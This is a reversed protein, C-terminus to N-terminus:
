PHKQGSKPQIAWSIQWIAGIAAILITGSFIMMSMLLVAPAEVGYIASFGILTFEAVGLNAISIPLIGLLYVASSQWVLATPPIAIGAAKAASVYIVINLLSAFLSVGVILIHFKWGTTQFTAIQNLTRETAARISKPLPRLTYKIVAIIPSGSKRTLLLIYASVIGIAVIGCIVPLQQTGGPNTVIIAVLGLLIKVVTDTVQNYVMSSLVNTGKSTIHKLIYWKVTASLAGPLILSYLTTVSSVGFIKISKINCDQRKLILQMQIARFWLNLIVLGWVLLLFQWKVTEINQRLKGLDIRSLVLWLLTSTVTIRLLLKLIRKTKDEM